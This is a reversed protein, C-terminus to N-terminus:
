FRGFIAGIFGGFSGKYQVGPVAMKSWGSTEPKFPFLRGTKSGSKLRSPTKQGFDRKQSKPRKQGNKSGKKTNIWYKSVFSM